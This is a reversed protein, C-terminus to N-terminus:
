YSHLSKTYPNKAFPKLLDPDLRNDPLEGSTKLTEKTDACPDASALVQYTRQPAFDRPDEVPLLHKSEVNIADGGVAIKTSTNTPARGKLITERSQNTQANCFQTDDTMAKANTEGAIGNYLYDNTFQRLTTKVTQPNTLHGQGMDRHADNFHEVTSIYQRNVPRADMEEVEYGGTQQIMGQNVNGLRRQDVTTEKITTRPIDNPDYVTPKKDANLFGERTDQVTTEKITTRAGDTIPMTLKNPGTLMPQPANCWKSHPHAERITTKFKWEKPDYSNAGSKKPADISGERTDHILTEKITTRAVDNPDHVTIKSPANRGFNGTRADHILTEKLTTSPPEANNVPHEKIGRIKLNGTRNYKVYNEKRTERMMDDIPATQKDIGGRLNTAHTRCETTTRENDHNSISDKGYNSMDGQQNKVTWSDASSLNRPGDSIYTHRRDAQIIPRAEHGEGTVPGAVGGYQMSCKRATPKVIYKSRKTPGTVAGTTRLLNDPSQEWATEPRNRAVESKNGRNTVAAKPPLVRGEYSLKSNGNVRMDDVTLEPPRYPDQFGGSPKSGPGQNLGPGVQVPQFPKIGSQTMSPIFRSTDVDGTPYFGNIQDTATEWPQFIPGSEQKQPQIKNTGTQYEFLTSNQYPDVNQKVTGGFFPTMNNHFEEVRAEPRRIPEVPEDDFIAPNPVVGGPVSNMYPPVIATEWPNKSRKYLDDGAAQERERVRLSRDSEYYNRSSPLYNEKSHVKVDKMTFSPNSTEDDNLYYGITALGLFVAAVEM